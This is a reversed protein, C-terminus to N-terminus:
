LSIQMQIRQSAQKGEPGLREIVRLLRKANAIDDQAILENIEQEFKNVLLPLQRQSQSVGPLSPSLQNTSHTANDSLSATSIATDTIEKTALTNLDNVFLDIISYRNELDRAIAKLVIQNVVDPLSPVYVSPKEPYGVSFKKAWNDAFPLQGTIMHYLIMGLSYIDSQYNPREELQEPAAYPITGSFGEEISQTLGRDELSKVLGFDTLIPAGTDTFLINRPTIDRHIFGQSHAHALAQAIPLIIRTADVYHFPNKLRALLTGGALYPMAFFPSPGIKGVALIKIINQHSLTALANVEKLFRNAIKKRDDKRLNSPIKIKKIAVHINLKADYAKYVIGFSGRDLEKEVRYRNNILRTSKQNDPTNATKDEPTKKLFNTPYPGGSNAQSPLSSILVHTYAAAVVAAYQQWEDGKRSDCYDCIGRIVLYGTDLSWTADAIGSGEMEVAKVNFRERLQDREYPNKLLINASAITGIFVRPQGPKRKPDSPHQIIVEPNKTDVLIDTEESPRHIKLKNLGDEIKTLWPRRGEIESADLFKVRELLFASPARPHYRYEIETITEKTLDYQIVGKQNSVVIDGLRVHDAPHNPDPIGGAIGVMIVVNVSPFHQLLQTARSSALNNGMDVMSALVVMHKGGDRASIEGLLYSNGAVRTSFDIKRIKKLLARVAVYEKPLATIIGVKPDPIDAITTKTSSVSRRPM